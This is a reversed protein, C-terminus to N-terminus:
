VRFSKEFEYKLQLMFKCQAWIRFRKESIFYMVM